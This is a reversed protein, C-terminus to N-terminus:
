EDAGLHENDRCSMMRPWVKPQTNITSCMKEPWLHQSKSHPFYTTLIGVFGKLKYKRQKKDSRSWNHICPVDRLLCQHSCKVVASVCRGPGLVTRSIFAHCWGSYNIEPTLPRWRRPARDSLMLLCDGWGSTYSRHWPRDLDLGARRIEM